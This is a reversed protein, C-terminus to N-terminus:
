NNSQKSIISNFTEFCESINDFRHNGEVYVGVSWTTGM